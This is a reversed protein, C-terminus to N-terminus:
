ANTMRRRRSRALIWLGALAPFIFPDVGSCGCGTSEVPQAPPGGGGGGSTGGDRAGGDSAGGDSVGSDFREGGDKGADAAGADSGADVALLDEPVEIPLPVPQGTAVSEWPVLKYNAQAFDHIVFLGADFGPLRHPVVDVHQPSRVVQPGISVTFRTQFTARSAGTLAHVTVEDNAPVTTILLGGGDALPYFTLGGVLGNFGGGDMPIVNSPSGAPLAVRFVGQSPIAAYLVGTRDDVVLASPLGPMTIMGAETGSVKGVGDDEVVFRRVTGANNDVYLELGGDRPAYPTPSQTTTSTIDGLGGGDLPAGFVVQQTVFAAAALITGPAYPLALGTRSDVGRMAGYPVVQALGGDLRYVYLGNQLPDSAAVLPESGGRDWVIALDGATATPISTTEAVWPVQARAVAAVILVGCTLLRRSMFATPM